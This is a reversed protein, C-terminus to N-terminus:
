AVPQVVATRIGVPSLFPIKRKVVAELGARPSGLPHRPNNRQPYPLRTTFSVVWRWRSGLDLIRSAISGWYAKMAYHKTLCLSLKVKLHFTFNDRHKLQVAHWSPTIPSHLYLEVCEQGQCYISTLPWSWAGAAKGGPFSGRTGMPYSALYAGCGNQVRHHLSFNGAGEPWRVRSGDDLAYGLAIGVSSHHSKWL